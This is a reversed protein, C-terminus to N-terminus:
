NSANNENIVLLVKLRNSKKKNIKKFKQVPNALIGKPNTEKRM